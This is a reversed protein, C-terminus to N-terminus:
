NIRWELILQEAELSKVPPLVWYVNQELISGKEINVNTFDIVPSAISNAYTRSEGEGRIVLYLDKNSFSATSKGNNIIKLKGTIKYGSEMKGEYKIAIANFELNNSVLDVRIGEGYCSAM